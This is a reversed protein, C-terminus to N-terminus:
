GAGRVPGPTPLVDRRVLLEAGDCRRGADRSLLGAVAVPLALVNDAFAWFLNGWIVELTHRPLRVTDAVTALEPRVVFRVVRAWCAGYTVRLGAHRYAVPLGRALPPATM